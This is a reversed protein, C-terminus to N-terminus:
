LWAASQQDGTANKEIISLYIQLASDWDGNVFARDGDSIVPDFVLSPLPDRITPAGTEVPIVDLPVSTETLPVEPEDAINFSSCAGLVSAIFILYLIKKIM